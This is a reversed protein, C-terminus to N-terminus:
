KKSKPLISAATKSPSANVGVSRNLNKMKSSAKVDSDRIKEVVTKFTKNTSVEPKAESLLNDLIVLYTEEVKDELGKSKLAAIAEDVIENLVSDFSHLDNLEQRVRNFLKSRAGDHDPRSLVIQTADHLAAVAEPEAFLEGNDAVEPDQREQIDQAKRIKKRVVDNFQESNQLLLTSATMQLGAVAFSSGLFFASILLSLLISRKMFCIRALVKTFQL